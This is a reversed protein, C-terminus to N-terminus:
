TFILEEEKENKLKDNYNMEDAAIRCKYLLNEKLCDLSSSIYNSLTVIQSISLNNNLKDDYIKEAFENNDFHNIYFDISNYIDLANKNSVDFELSYEKDYIMDKHICWINNNKNVKWGCDEIIKKLKNLSIESIDISDRDAFYEGIKLKKFIRGRDTFRGTYIHHNLLTNELNKFSYNYYAKFGNINYHAIDECAYIFFHYMDNSLKDLSGSKQLKRYEKVIKEYPYVINGDYLVESKINYKDLHNQIILRDKEEVGTLNIKGLLESDRELSKETGYIKIKNNIIESSM